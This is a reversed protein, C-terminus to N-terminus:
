RAFYIPNGIMLLRGDLARVNVRVWRSANRPTFAARVTVDEKDLSLRSDIISRSAGHEIVEIRNGAAGVVRTTLWIMQSKRIKLTDGMDARQNGTEASFELLRDKTGDIDVFVRGSRVGDLLAATSLGNAFIVTTPLGPQNADRLVDHNDSGGIATLRNGKNLLKEWFPIGSLPSEVIGKAAVVSGGNMVEIAQVLSWDTGPAVWGCGLCNEGSPVTPHNVSVLGGLARARLLMTNVSPVAESGVRFDVFATPGFMNAHGYFTTLERGPVLLMNDFYPQLEMMAQHHSQSNHESITFFDLGRASAAEISKYLPCPVRKGTMSACSGDSHATHAHFDGRYWRAQTSLPAAAFDKPRADRGFSIRATYSSRVGKRINPIGLMLKWEGPVIPGPLYSPTAYSESLTFRAKNGGSAGRFREPDALGLDIVTRQDRETYEFEITLAAVDPPVRFPLEVYTQHASDDITGTLVMDPQRAGAPVATILMLLSAFLARM